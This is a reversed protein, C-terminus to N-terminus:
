GMRKIEELKKKLKKPSMPIATKLEQAFISVKLEELWWFFEEIAIRKEDTVSISISKLLEDLSNTFIKIEEAKIKDKELNVCAREARIALAKIYRPLQTMQEPEYLEAFNQPVLRSLWAKLEALFQVIIRNARNAMELNYIISRTEQFAELVPIVLDLIQRGRELLVPSVSALTANFEKRTRINKYFLEGVVRNFLRTELKRVGGFYRSADKQAQGLCLNKKLFKLDKALYITFIRTIGKKHSEIAEDRNEYLRLNVCKDDQGHVQLGPYITWEAANEVQLTIHDPLDGFDWRCINEREWTKRATELENPSADGSAKQALVAKNRSYRLAEGDPGTIALRMRLHDPLTNLPWANAPIDVEFHTYIFKGLATILHGQGQPMKKVILNVTEAVVIGAGVL